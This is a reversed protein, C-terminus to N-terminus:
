EKGSQDFVGEESLGKLVVALIQEENGGKKGEQGAKNKKIASLAVLM